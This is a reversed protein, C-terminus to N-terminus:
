KSNSIKGHIKWRIQFKKSNSYRSKQSINLCSKLPRRRLDIRLINLTALYLNLAVWTPLISFNSWSTIGLSPYWVGIFLKAETREVWVTSNTTSSKPRLLRQLTETLPSFVSKALNNTKWSKYKARWAQIPALTSSYYLFVNLILLYHEIKSLNKVNKAM